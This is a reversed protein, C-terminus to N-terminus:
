GKPKENIKQANIMRVFSKKIEHLAKLRNYLLERNEKDSPDSTEWRNICESRLTEFTTEFVENDLIQQAALAKRSISDTM